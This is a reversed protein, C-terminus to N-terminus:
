FKGMRYRRRRHIFPFRKDLYVRRSSYHRKNRRKSKIMLSESEEEPPTSRSLSIHNGKQMNKEIEKGSLSPANSSGESQEIKPDHGSQAFVEGSSTLLFVSSIWIAIRERVPLRIERIINPDVQEIRFIGCIEPDQEKLSRIEGVSLHTFDHIIKDCQACHRGCSVSPMSDYDENCVFSMTITEKM